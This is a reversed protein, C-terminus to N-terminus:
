DEEDDEPLSQLRADNHGDQQRKQFLVDTGVSIGGDISFQSILYTFSGFFFFFCSILGGLYPDAGARAQQEADDGAATENAGKVAEVNVSPTDRVLDPLADEAQQGGQDDGDHADGQEADGLELLFPADLQGPGQGGLAPGRGVGGGGAELPETLFVGHEDEGEDGDEAFAELSDDEDSADTQPERCGGDGERGDGAQQGATQDAIQDVLSDVAGGSGGASVSQCKGSAPVHSGDLDEQDNGGTHQIKDARSQEGSADCIELTVLYSGEELRDRRDALRACHFM